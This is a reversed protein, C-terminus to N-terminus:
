INFLKQANETTYAAMEEIQEGRLDVLFQAIDRIHKPECVKGRHQSPALFPADTELLLKGKPVKKAAELQASDSTFTMIGNLAVYLGRSLAEELEKPNASFSHIVGRMKPYSDYIRWFDIWADRVHFVFPLGTSAGIEIQLRLLKEQDAKPSYNKYFDLGIEGVAVVKPMTLLAKFRSEPDKQEFFDKGDHPHVGITAWVNDHRAAIDIAKQSDDLTTGVCILRTVDAGAADKTVQDLNKALKDFQLHCHTDVFEM